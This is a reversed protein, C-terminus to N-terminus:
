RKRLDVINCNEKSAKLLVSNVYEFSMKEKLIYQRQKEKEEWNLWYSM